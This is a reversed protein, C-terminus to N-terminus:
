GSRISHTSLTIPPCTSRPPILEWRADWSPHPQLLRAIVYVIDGSQFVEKKGYVRRYGLQSGIEIRHFFFRADPEFADIM